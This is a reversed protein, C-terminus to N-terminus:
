NTKEDEEKVIKKRKKNLLRKHKASEEIKIRKQDINAYSPIPFERYKVSCNINGALINYGIGVGFIKKIPIQSYHLQIYNVAREIYRKEEICELAAIGMDEPREYKYKFEVVHLEEKYFFILDCRFCSVESEISDEEMKADISIIQISKWNEERGIYAIIDFFICSLLFESHFLIKVSQLSSKLSEELSGANDLSPCQLFGLLSSAWAKLDSNKTSLALMDYSFTRIIPVKGGATYKSFSTVSIKKKSYVSFTKSSESKKIKGPIKQIIKDLEKEDTDEPYSFIINRARINPCEGPKFIKGKTKQTQTSEKNSFLNSENRDSKNKLCDIEAEFDIKNEEKNASKEVEIKIEDKNKKFYDGVKHGKVELAIEFVEALMIEENQTLFSIMKLKEFFNIYEAM